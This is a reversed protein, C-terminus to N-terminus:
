RAARSGPVALRFRGGDRRLRVLAGFARTLTRSGLVEGIPGCAVVRGGAELVLAHSISPVIEEVHHTVLVISPSAVGSSAWERGLREVLALFRERAVPDLGACPEDLLLVSCGSLLARGILVRQREGQSLHAWPRDALPAAEVRELMARADAVDRAAPRGWYNIMGFRGSLVVELATEPPEIRNAVVSSVLGVRPKLAQWDSEGYTEGLLHVEGDSPTLYGCLVALLSSKGSGNPGLMVWHEGSRVRWDIGDLIVAEREVRVGRIDILTAGGANEDIRDGSM